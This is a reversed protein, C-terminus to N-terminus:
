ADATKNRRHWRWRNMGAVGFAISTLLLTAPEPVVVQGVDGAYNTPSNIFDGGAWARSMTGDLPLASYSGSNTGFFNITGGNLFLFNDPIIYDPTVGSAAAIGSTGFLLHKNATSGALPSGPINFFNNLTFTIDDVSIVQGNVFQESGSTTFMEIFQLTGTSDSFIEKLEWFHFAARVPTGFLTTASLAAIFLWTHRMIASNNRIM